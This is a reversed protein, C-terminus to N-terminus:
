KKGGSAAAAAAIAQEAKMQEIQADLVQRKLSTGTKKAYWLVLPSAIFISSYTGLLVGITIPMAFELMAPNGLFLLVIMPALATPGTLLTRSLTKCIAENMMERMSGGSGKQITERIRDFVVITDNISYGAITLLAGVHIVSLEQGFLVCLGPVMLVDHFLAIIAGLAFAVEYRLLLYLFIAILAAFMAWMSQYALESGIVSGVTAISTGLVTDSKWHNNIANQIVTGSKEECRISINTAGSADTKRQPYYTGIDTKGDEQKLGKLVADFESDAINKGKVLTVDVRSGGRFDIGFSEKGKIALTAFSIATVVLSAIIFKPASSLIDFVKDPIIKTTHIKHLIGKDVVWMFIVRTVILAGVMSSILGVMLTVAFGKVLGGSIVFLIVASILTTINSDAIASFAKEYAAELAGVLTKGAEMEERLREYILVNADVAMGITLVVGAIGPMTLTFGFLAMSGFLIAINIVLGVIAVLGALRYIFMMFCTTIILAAIGIWKGQDISSQGYASSVSSESLINMPNQLPNSLLTALSDAEQQTFGAASGGSIEARGGYQRAKLTPASHIQGDVIIAMEKMYHISALDDFLKAGASNFQLAVKNGQADVTRFASSVYKGEIDATDRVLESRVPATSDKAPTYKMEVWGPEKIGGRARIQELKAQSDPHVRRFELHAVTQIKTRVEKIEDETIGPMQIVIRDGGEPQMTLDKSADPNLRRELIGIAQQVDNSTVPKPTGDDNKGPSLQVIFESGGQLDIGLKLKMVEVTYISAIATVAVLLTGVLRKTKHVATGVYVLLMMLISAGVLFTAFPNM